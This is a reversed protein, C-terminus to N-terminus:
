ATDRVKASRRKSRQRHRGYTAAGGALAVSGLAYPSSVHNVAARLLADLESNGLGVVLVMAVIPAAIVWLAKGGLNLWGAAASRRLRSLRARRATELEDLRAAAQAAREVRQLAADFAEASMQTEQRDDAGELLEIFKLASVMGRPNKERRPKRPKRGVTTRSSSETVGASESFANM